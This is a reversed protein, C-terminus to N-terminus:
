ACTYADFLSHKLHWVGLGAPPPRTAWSNEQKHDHQLHQHTNTGDECGVRVEFYIFFMFKFIACDLLTAVCSGNSCVYMSVCGVGWQHGADRSHCSTTTASKRAATASERACSSPTTSTTEGRLMNRHLLKFKTNWKVIPALYPTTTDDSYSM